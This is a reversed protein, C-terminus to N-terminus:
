SHDPPSTGRDADPRRGRDTGRRRHRWPALSEFLDATREGLRATLSWPSPQRVVRLNGRQDLVEFASEGSGKRYFRLTISADSVRLGRLTVDPLWQPLHPDIFLTHMPAYPQLGLMAQLLTFVTTASWAQPSNAAPYIAPFPHEQDRPHGSVCEPLRFWDFIAALEFQARCVQELRDHYGYRYAAVALPGHEVPWVTGRHYSYPNYSPHDASLTRVGWGSWLDPAFLRELVRSVREKEVIGTALCHLANSGISRVQRKQHDLAMAVFGEDQMWFAENFRRKLERARRYLHRAEDRRGLWWLVEALNTQAAYLIGQEECTALPKPVQTGDEYVIADSSDKWGQNEVGQVSHTQYECFCDGDADCRELWKLAKIAPDLLPEIAGRDGTWHWLQALVFAYFSSTTVSGYYRSKPNLNLRALPGTHAEHLMKGPEEDRWDDRKTGQWRALQALTGRMLEPGLLAGEWAVTLTDRGFLAVYLPLGAAVTWAGEGCDLDHLHLAVLDRRAQNLAGIVDTTLTEASPASFRTAERLFATDREDTAVHEGILAHCGYPPAMREEDISVLWKLCTHWTGHPPLEVCFGIRSGRHSPTSGANEIRLKLGRQTTATGQHGQVDYQHSARYELTLEWAGDGVAQWRREVSGRQRRQGKTESQDAFDSQVELELQLTVPSLTYNTLDLDEHMGYGVARSIRVEIAQQAADQPSGGADAPNEASVIYYGLWTNQKVNSLAVPHPPRGNVLVRYHSLVRTEHVFLGEEPRGELFGDLQTALVTYGHSVFVSEPRPRLRILTRETRM